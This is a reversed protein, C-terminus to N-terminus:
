QGDLRHFMLGISWRAWQGNLRNVEPRRERSKLRKAQKLKLIIIVERERNNFGCMNM